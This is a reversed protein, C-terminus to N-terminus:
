IGLHDYSSQGAKILDFPVEVGRCPLRRGKLKLSGKFSEFDGPSKNIPIQPINTMESRPSCFPKLSDQGGLTQQKPADFHTM